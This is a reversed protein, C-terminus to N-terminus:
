FEILLDSIPFITEEVAIVVVIVQLWGFGAVRQIVLNILSCPNGRAM